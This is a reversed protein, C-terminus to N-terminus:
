LELAAVTVGDINSFSINVDGNADNYVAPPFPGFFNDGGSADVTFSDDAVAHGDVTQQTVITVTCDVANAKELHLFQKGTNRLKYTNSTSLSGLATETLGSVLITKIALDINAM